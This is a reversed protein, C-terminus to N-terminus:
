DEVVKVNTGTYGTQEIVGSNFPVTPLTWRYVWKADEPTMNV